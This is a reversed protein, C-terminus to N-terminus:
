QGFGAVILILPWFRKMTTFDGLSQIFGRWSANNRPQSYTLMDISSSEGM